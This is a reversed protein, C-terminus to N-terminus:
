GATSFKFVTTQRYEEGPRLMTSPFNPHNPSDPFHQTELCFASRRSVAKGSKGVLSGDLFNGSYFQIGPETTWVELVRGTAPDHARAAFEIGDGARDLVYNHDYGGALKLQEYDAGIRQGIAAPKRFDLPTGDVARIEGTPILAGDIPTFQGANLTIETGLNSDSNTAALNFYAHNTLNLVTDKDTTATYDIRLSNEENLAYTVAVSLNGPYGEEGDQSHYGLELRSGNGAPQTVTWFKRDFGEAGGHLSNPGGNTALSYAAGNLTFRGKAIRNAYRGVIAGFYPNRGLFLVPDGFGVVVDAPKGNGDPVILSVIRAGYDTIVVEMGSANALKFAKPQNQQPM